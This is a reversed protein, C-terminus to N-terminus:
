HFSLFFDANERNTLRLSKPLYSQSDRSEVLLSSTKMNKEGNEAISM